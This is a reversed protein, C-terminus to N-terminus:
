MTLIGGIPIPLWAPRNNLEYLLEYLAKELLYASFLNQAQEPSPHQGIDLTNFNEGLTMFVGGHDPDEEAIVFGLVDRYFRKSVEQDAVRLLVHGIGKLKIMATKGVKHPPLSVLVDALRVALLAGNTETSVVGGFATMALRRLRRLLRSRPDAGDGRSQKAKSAIVTCPKM